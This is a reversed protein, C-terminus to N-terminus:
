LIKPGYNWLYIFIQAMVRSIAFFERYNRYMQLNELVPAMIGCFKKFPKFIIGINGYRNSFSIARERAVSFVFIGGSGRGSGSGWIM